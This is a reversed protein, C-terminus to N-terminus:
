PTAPQARRQLARTWALLAAVVAFAIVPEAIFVLRAPLLFAAAVGAAAEALTGAGWVITVRRMARRFAPLALRENWAAARARDGDSAFARAVFFMLPRKAFLSVFCAAGFLAFAPAARVLAFRPDHTLVALLLGGGIGGLVGVGVVDVGRRWLWSLVIKAVLYLGAM